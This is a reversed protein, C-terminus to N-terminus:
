SQTHWSFLCRQIEVARDYLKLLCSLYLDAWLMTVPLAQFPKSTALISKKLERVRRSHRKEAKYLFFAARSTQQRVQVSASTGKRCHSHWRWGEVGGVERCRWDSASAKPVDVHLGQMRGEPDEELLVRAEHQTCSPLTTGLWQVTGSRPLLSANILKAPFYDMCPVSGNTENAFVFKYTKASWSAVEQAGAVRTPESLLM